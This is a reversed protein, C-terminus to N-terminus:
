KVPCGLLRKGGTGGQKKFCSLHQLINTHKHTHDLRGMLSPTLFSMPSLLLLLSVPPTIAKPPPLHRQWKQPAHTLSQPTPTQLNPPPLAISGAEQASSPVHPATPPKPVFFLVQSCTVAATPFAVGDRLFHSPDAGWLASHGSSGEPGSRLPSWCGPQTINGQCHACAPSAARADGPLRNFHM